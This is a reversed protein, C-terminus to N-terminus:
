ELETDDDQIKTLQCYSLHWGAEDKRFLNALRYRGTLDQGRLNGQVRIIARKLAVNEGYPRVKFDEHVFTDFSPNGGMVSGKMQTKNWPRGEPDVFIYEDAIIRDLVTEDNQRSAQVWIDFFENVKEPSDLTQKALEEVRELPQKEIAKM